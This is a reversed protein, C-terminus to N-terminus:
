SVTEARYFRLRLQPRNCHHSSYWGHKLRHIARSSSFRRRPGPVPTPQSPNPVPNPQPLPNPQPNPPLPPQPKPHPKLPLTPVSAGAFQSLRPEHLHCRITLQGPIVTSRGQTRSTVDRPIPQREAQAFAWPGNARRMRNLVAVIM